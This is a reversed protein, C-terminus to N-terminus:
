RMTVLHEELREFTERFGETVGMQLQMDRDENSAFRSRMTFLTTEPGADEFTLTLEVQPGLANGEADAFANTCVIKSPPEIELYEGVNWAETGDPGRLSFHWTGGVRFDLRSEGIPWDRPGWWAKLHENQTFAEFVLDRPAEFARSMTIERDATGVKLETMTSDM